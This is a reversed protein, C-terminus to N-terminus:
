AHAVAGGAVIGGGEGRRHHGASPGPGHRPQAGSAASLGAQWHQLVEVVDAVEFRRGAM